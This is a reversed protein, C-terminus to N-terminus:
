RKANRAERIVDLYSRQAELGKAQIYHKETMALSRHGLLPAAARVHVPDAVVLTTAAADRFRHPSIAKGFAAETHLEIRNSLGEETMPSGDASVWLANGVEATWRGTRAALVPRQLEIYTDIAAVLVEAIPAEYPEHTKTEDRGLVLRWGDSQRILNKGIALRALNKRRIPHLALFAIVLGDRYAIADDISRADAAAEMLRFGLDVLENSPRVHAKSQAPVLGSRLAGIFRSIAKLDCGADLITAVVVLEQLRNIVTGDANGSHRLHEVYAQVRAKSCRQGAPVNLADPDHGELFVLWRGWGKAYKTISIPSRDALEGGEEEFISRPTLARHWAAQDAAPWLEVPRCLKEAAPKPIPSM